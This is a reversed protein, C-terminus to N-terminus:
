QFQPQATAPQCQGNRFRGQMRYQQMAGFQGGGYLHQQGRFGRMAQQGGGWAGGGSRGGRGPGGHRAFADSAAFALTLALIL